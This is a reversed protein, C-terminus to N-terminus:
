RSKCLAVFLLHPPNPRFDAAFVRHFITCNSTQINAYSMWEGFDGDVPHSVVMAFVQWPLINWFQAINADGLPLTFQLLAHWGLSAVGNPYPRHMGDLVHEAARSTSKDPIKPYFSLPMASVVLPEAYSIV